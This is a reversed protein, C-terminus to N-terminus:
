LVGMDGKFTLDMPKTVTEVECNILSGLRSKIIPTVAKLRDGYSFGPNEFEHQEIIGTVLKKEKAFEPNDKIFQTFHKRETEKRIVLQTIVEPILRFVLEVLQGERETLDNISLDM